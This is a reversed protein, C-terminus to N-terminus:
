YYDNKNWYYDDEYAYSKNDCVWYDATAAPRVYNDYSGVYWEILM